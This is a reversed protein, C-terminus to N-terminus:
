SPNESLSIRHCGGIGHGRYVSVEASGGRRGTVAVLVTASLAEVLDELIEAWGALERAASTSAPRYANYLREVRGGVLPDNEIGLLELATSVSPLKGVQTSVLKSELGATLCPNGV